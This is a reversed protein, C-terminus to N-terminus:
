EHIQNEYHEKIQRILYPNMWGRFNSTEEIQKIISPINPIGIMVAMSRIETGNEIMTIQQNATNWGKHMAIGVDGRNGNFIANQIASNISDAMAKQRMKFADEDSVIHDTKVMWYILGASGEYVDYLPNNM